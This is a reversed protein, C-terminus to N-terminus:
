CRTPYGTDCIEQLPTHHNGDPLVERNGGTTGQNALDTTTPTINTPLMQCGHNSQNGTGETGGNDEKDHTLYM